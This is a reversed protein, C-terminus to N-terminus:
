LNSLDSIMDSINTGINKLMSLLNTAPSLLSMPDDSSAATAAQRSCSVLGGVGGGSIQNKIDDVLKTTNSVLTTVDSSVGQLKPLLNAKLSSLDSSDADKLVDAFAAKRADNMANMADNAASIKDSDITDSFTMEASKVRAEAISLVSKARSTCNNKKLFEAFEESAKKYNDASALGAKQTNASVKKTSAVENSAKDVLASYEKNLADLKKTHQNWVSWNINSANAAKKPPTVTQELGAMQTKVSQKSADQCNKNLADYVESAAIVIGCSAILALIFYLLKRRTINAFVM